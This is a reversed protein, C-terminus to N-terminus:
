ELVQFSELCKKSCGRLAANFAALAKDISRPRATDSQKLHM